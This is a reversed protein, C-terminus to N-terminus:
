AQPWAVPAPNADRLRALADVVRGAEAITMGTWNPLNIMTRAWLKANPMDTCASSLFLGSQIKAARLARITADRDAVPFPFRAWTPRHTHAFTRFGREALKGEYFEGVRRRDALIASLEQLQGIGIQAQYPSARVGGDEPLGPIESQNSDFDGGSFLALRDLVSVAPERYAAWAAIGKAILTLTRDPSPAGYRDRVARVSRYLAGDRLLLMGGSLSTILKGLGLSFLAADAGRLQLGGEDITGYSQAEDYLIFAGPARARIAEDCKKDVPYGFLPTMIAMATQPTPAAQWDQWRPLFHDPASDVYVVRNSSAAVADPVVVCTYAPCLVERNQWGLGTLLAHIAVRGYPFLLGHVFGFREAFAQELAAVPDGSGRLAARLLDSLRLATRVRALM